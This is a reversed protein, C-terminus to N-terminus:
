MDEFDNFRVIWDNIIIQTTIWNLNEDLFMTLAYEDQRDLYEQTSINHGEAETLELFKILPISLVERNQEKNRIVLRMPQGQVLRGVKLQAVAVGIVPEGDARVETETNSGDVVSGTYTQYPYYTLVDDELLNNDWDLFGNADTIKFEFKNVDLGTGRIQQLIVRIKNTDKVLPILAVQQTDYIEDYTVKTRGHWLPTIKTDVIAGEKREMKCNLTTIDDGRMLEPVEYTDADSLGAWCVLEYTGPALESLSMTYGEKALMDGAETKQFIFKGDEDFVFVTVSSVENAFADAYKMNYDYKFRVRFDLVCHDYSDHITDCSTVALTVMLAVFITHLHRTVKIVRKMM